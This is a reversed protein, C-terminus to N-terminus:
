VIRNVGPILVILYGLLFSGLVTFPAILLFKLAPDIQLQRVAMSLSIVVLPHIIYVAFSSRSLKSLLNTTSNWSQQGKVLLATLISLGIWQEWVAYLLSQWHFGGSFWAIPMQTRTRIIYFMPFCLLCLWASLRLQKGTRDSLQEFWNNRYALIGIIFLAIYQPFHGLQFGLPKLEWGVPFIVRTFFSIVGLGVAFILIRKTGPVALRKSFTFLRFGAVYILTFDLLAAV